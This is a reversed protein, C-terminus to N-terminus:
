PSPLASFSLGTVTLWLSREAGSLRIEFALSPRAEREAAVFREVCELAEAPFRLTYGDPREVTELPTCELM